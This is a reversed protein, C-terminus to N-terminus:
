EIKKLLRWYKKIQPVNWESGRNKVEILFVNGNGDTFLSDVQLFRIGKQCNIKIWRDYPIFGMVNEFDEFVCTEFSKSKRNAKEWGSEFELVGLDKLLWKLDFTNKSLEPIKKEIEKQLIDLFWGESHKFLFDCEKISNKKLTYKKRETHWDKWCIWNESDDRDESARYCKSCLDLNEYKTKCIFYLKKIKEGYKEIIKLRALKTPNPKKKVRNIFNKLDEDAYNVLEVFYIKGFEKELDKETYDKEM